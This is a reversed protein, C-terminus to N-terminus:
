ASWIFKQEKEYHKTFFRAGMILAFKRMQHSYQPTKSLISLVLKNSYFCNFFKSFISKQQYTAANKISKSGCLDGRVLNRRNGIQSPAPTYRIAYRM